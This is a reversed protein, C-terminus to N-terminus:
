RVKIDFVTIVGPQLQQGEVITANSQAVTPHSTGTIGAAVQEGLERLGKSLTKAANLMTATYSSVGDCDCGGASRKSPLMKREAYALWRTGLAIPNPNLGPSPHCTTITLRDEFTRADFVAIKEAFTVVVSQHNATVELITTKFKISKVSDGDRLSVINMSCFQPGSAGTQSSDCIAMLPRKHAYLDNSENCVEANSAIPSPLLKLTRVIGHRWSLVETAEGNAPIAWVQIGTGYGIILLLPPPVGNELDWDDGFCPNSVDATSEFKTWLIQEKPDGQPVNTLTVENIFGTVSDIISCDSVAEPPVISPISRAIRKPSEASM